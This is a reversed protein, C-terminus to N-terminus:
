PVLPDSSSEETMDTGHRKISNPLVLEPEILTVQPETDNDDLHQYARKVMEEARQRVMPVPHRLLSGFPDYDYAAITCADVEAQPLQILFELAGEFGGNSNVLLGKPLSKRRQYYNSLAQKAAARQYGCALIQEPVTKHGKAQLAAKFGLIRQETAPLNADGGLFVVDKLEHFGIEEIMVETLMRGGLKNETVVSPASNCPQDVFVHPVNAKQCMESLVEPHSIGVLMLADVSSNILGRVADLEQNQDRKASVIVPLAERARTENSFCQGISSFFRNDHQPLVMGVLGSKANRLARAQLNVSYNLEDAIAQIRHVTSESIRRNKWTGNLASGVTSASVGAKKAIDYITQKRSSNM